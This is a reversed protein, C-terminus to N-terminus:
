SFRFLAPRLDERRNYSNYFRASVRLFSTGTDTNRSFHKCRNFGAITNFFFFCVLQLETEFETLFVIHGYQSRDTKEDSYRSACRQIISFNVRFLKFREFLSVGKIPPIENGHM